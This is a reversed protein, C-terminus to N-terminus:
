FDSPTNLGPLYKEVNSEICTPNICVLEMQAHPLVKKRPLLQASSYIAWLTHPTERVPSIGSSDPCLETSHARPHGKKSYPPLVLHGSHDWGVKDM